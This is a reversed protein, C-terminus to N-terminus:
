QSDNEPGSGHSRYIDTQYSLIYTSEIGGNSKRFIWQTQHTMGKFSVGTWGENKKFNRLETGVTMMM